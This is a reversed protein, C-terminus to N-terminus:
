YAILMSISIPLGVWGYSSCCNGWRTGQCTASGWDLGCRANTSVPKSPATSTRTSTSSIRTSTSSQTSTTSARTSTSSRTSSSSRVSSSSRSNCSGYGSQCGSGCHGTTDGSSTGSDASFKPLSLHLKGGVTNLVVDAMSAMLAPRNQFAQDM